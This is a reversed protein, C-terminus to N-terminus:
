SLVHGEVSEPERGFEEAGDALLAVGLRRGDLRLGDRQNELPTVQQSRGLGAGALRRGERQGDQLGQLDGGVRRERRSAVRDPREDQRRCTLQRHLDDLGRARVPAM